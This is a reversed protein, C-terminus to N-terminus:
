AAPPGFKAQPEFLLSGQAQPAALTISAKELNGPLLLVGSTSRAIFAPTSKRNLL